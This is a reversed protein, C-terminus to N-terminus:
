FHKKPLETSFINLSTTVCPPGKAPRSVRTQLPRSGHSMKRNTLGASTLEAISFGYDSCPQLNRVFDSFVTDRDCHDLLQDRVYYKPFYRIETATTSCTAAHAFIPRASTLEYTWRYSNDRRHFFSKRRHSNDTAGINLRCGFKRRTSLTKLRPSLRFIQTAITLCNTASLNQFYRIEFFYTVAHDFILRRSVKPPPPPPSFSAHIADLGAM